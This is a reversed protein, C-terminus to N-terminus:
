LIKKLQDAAKQTTAWSTALRIVTNKKDYKEWYSYSVVRALEGLASDPWVVFIQNTPSDVYLRYGKDLLDEKIQAAMEVAHRCIQFYLNDTFLASFQVGLLRGKALLGGHQKVSTLFHKPSNGQPFVVAEGCIAGAKTGGIYFADALRAVDALDMDAEDCMLGYGLRAGDVFLRIGYANCTYRLAELEARTYVTGYETPQSIYVLGPQPMHDSSADAGFERLYRALDATKLKGEHGPLTIVKHGSYEIAGAEHVSIHGTDAAIVAEYPQLMTDIVIQNTQTGGALFYVEGKPCKAAARIKDAAERCYMDTGYGPLQEMNTATLAKLVMPHMGEGYDNTFFLM